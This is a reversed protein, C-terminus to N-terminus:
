AWLNTSSDGSAHLSDKFVSTGRSSTEEPAGKRELARQEAAPQSSREQRELDAFAVSRTPTPPHGTWFQYTTKKQFVLRVHFALLATILHFLGGVGVFLLLQIM